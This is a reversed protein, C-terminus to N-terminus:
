LVYGKTIMSIEEQRSSVKFRNNPALKKKKVKSFNDLDPDINEKNRKAMKCVSGAVIVDIM